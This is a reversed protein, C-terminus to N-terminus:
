SEQYKASAHFASPVRDHPHSQCGELVGAVPPTLDIGEAVERRRREAMIRNVALLRKLTSLGDAM